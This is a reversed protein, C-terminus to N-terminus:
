MEELTQIGLIQLGTEMIIKTKTCLFLRFHQTKLDDVM